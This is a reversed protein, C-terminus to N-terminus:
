FFGSSPYSQRAVLSPLGHETCLLLPGQASDTLLVLWFPVSWSTLNRMFSANETWAQVLYNVASEHEYSNLLRQAWSNDSALLRATWAQVLYNVASEHEYSNLLRQAWSNDSALPRACRVGQYVIKDDAIFRTITGEYVSHQITSLYFLITVIQASLIDTNYCQFFWCNLALNMINLDRCNGLTFHSCWM